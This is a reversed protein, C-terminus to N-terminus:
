ILQTKSTDSLWCLHINKRNCSSGGGCWQAAVLVEFGCSHQCSEGEREIFGLPYMKHWMKCENATIKSPSNTRAWHPSGRVLPNIKLPRTNPSHPTLITHSPWTAPQSQSKGTREWDVEKMFTSHLTVGAALSPLYLASGWLSLSYRFMHFLGLWSESILVPDIFTTTYWLGLAFIFYTSSGIASIFFQLMWYPPKLFDQRKTLLALLSLQWFFSNWNNKIGTLFLEVLFTLSDLRNSM